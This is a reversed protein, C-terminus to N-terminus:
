PLAGQYLDEYARGFPAGNVRPDMITGQRRIREAQTPDGGAYSALFALPSIGGNAGEGMQAGANSDQIDLADDLMQGLVRPDRSPVQRNPGYSWEHSEGRLAPQMTGYPNAMVDALTWARAYNFAANPDIGNPTNYGVRAMARLRALAGINPTAGQAANRTDGIRNVSPPGFMPLSDMTEAFAQEDTLAPKFIDGPFFFMSLASAPNLAYSAASGLTNM